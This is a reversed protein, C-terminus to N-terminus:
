GVIMVRLFWQVRFSYYYHAPGTLYPLMQTKIKQTGPYNLSYTM